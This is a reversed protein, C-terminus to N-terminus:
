LKSCQVTRIRLGLYYSPTNFLLSFLIFAIYVAARRRALAEAVSVNGCNFDLRSTSPTSSHWGSISVYPRCNGALEGKMVGEHLDAPTFFAQSFSPM